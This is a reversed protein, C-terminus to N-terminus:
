EETWFLESPPFPGTVSLQRLPARATAVASAPAAALTTCFDWAAATLSDGDALVRSVAGAILPDGAQHTAGGYVVEAARVPGLVQALRSVLPAPLRYGKAVEPLSFTASEVAFCLDCALALGWGAGVAPGNVAALSPVQLEGIDRLVEAVLRIRALRPGAPPNPGFERVDAGASFVSGAGTILLVRATPDDRLARLGDRLEELVQTSLANCVQPRHLRLEVVGDRVTRVVTDTM